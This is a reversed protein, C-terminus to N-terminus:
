GFDLVIVPVNPLPVSLAQTSAPKFGSIIAGELSTGLIATARSANRDFFSAAWFLVTFFLIYDNTLVILVNREGTKTNDFIRKYKNIVFM